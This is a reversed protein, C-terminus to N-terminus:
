NGKAGTNESIAAGLPPLDSGDRAQVTMTARVPSGM